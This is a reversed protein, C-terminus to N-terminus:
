PHCSTGAIALCAFQAAAFSAVAHLQGWLMHGSRGRLGVALLGLGQVSASSSYQMHGSRLPVGIRMSELSATAAQLEDCLCRQACVLWSTHHVHVCHRKFLHLAEVAQALTVSTLDCVPGATYSCQLADGCAGLRRTEAFGQVADSVRVQAAWLGSLVQCGCRKCLPHVEPTCHQASAFPRVHAADAVSWCSPAHARIHSLEPAALSDQM